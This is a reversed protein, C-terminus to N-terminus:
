NGDNGFEKVKVSENQKAEERVQKFGGYAEVRVAAVVEPPIKVADVVEGELAEVQKDNTGLFQHPDKNEIVAVDSGNAVVAREGHKVIKIVTKQKKRESVDVSKLKPAAYQALEKLVQFKEPEYFYKTVKHAKLVQM